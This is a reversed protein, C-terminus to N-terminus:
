LLINEEVILAYLYREKETNIIMKIFM